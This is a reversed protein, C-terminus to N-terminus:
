RARRLYTRVQPLRSADAGAAQISGAGSCGSAPALTAGDLTNTGCTFQDASCNRYPLAIATGGIAAFRNNSIDAQCINGQARYGDFRTRTVRNGTVQVRTVSGSGTNIDIAAHGTATRNNGPQTANQNDAITNSAVLVNTADSTRYGDEQAVMVAAAKQVGEIWNGAVTVDASGVVAVGRGWANGALYNSTVYINRTQANDRQYSVIGVMDDGTATVSSNQVLVDQSGGTIHIGDALTGSIKDGVLAIGVGRSVFIGASAGGEITVDLVQIGTGDVIVKASTASELRQTGTGKLTVGVLTSNAGTIQIAQQDPNSAVLTADYGSLVVQERRVALVRGVLYSGPALVLRQGPQLNDLAAQLVDAQDTGSAGPQVVVDAPAGIAPSVPAVTQPWQALLAIGGAAVAAIAAAIGLRRRMPRRGRKM